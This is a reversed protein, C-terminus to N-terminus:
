GFLFYRLKEKWGWVQVCHARSIKKWSPQAPQKLLACVEPAPCISLISM